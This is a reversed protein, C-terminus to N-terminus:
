KKLDLEMYKHEKKFNDPYDKALEFFPECDSFHHSYFLKHASKMYGTSHLRLKRYEIDMAIEIIKSLIKGGNGKNRHKPKVYIFKIEGIGESVEEIAGMGIIEEEVIILLFRGNPLLFKNIVGMVFQLYHNIATENDSFGSHIGLNFNFYELTQESTWHWYEGILEEIKTKFSNLNDHNLVIIEDM